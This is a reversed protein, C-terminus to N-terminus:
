KKAKESSVVKAATLSIFGKTALAHLKKIAKEPDPDDAMSRAFQQDDESLGAVTADWEAQKERRALEIPSVTTEPTWFAMSEWETRPAIREEDPYYARFQNCHRDLRFVVARKGTINNTVKVGKQWLSPAEIDERGVLGADERELQKLDLGDALVAVHTEINPSNM